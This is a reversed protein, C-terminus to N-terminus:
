SRFLRSYQTEHQLSFLDSRLAASGLDDTTLTEAERALQTVAPHLGAIIRQGDTQGVIGLRVSASCLNALFAALYGTLLAPLAIGHAAGCLGVAVPLTLRALDPGAGREAGPLAFPYAAQTVQLFAQGQVSAEMQRERSPQLAAALDVVAQLRPSDDAGTARWAEALLIADSRGSGHALVDDIWGQLAARGQVAESEGAWELGHSFAFGGIPYAPSFWALLLLQQRAQEAAIEAPDIMRM